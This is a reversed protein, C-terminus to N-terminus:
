ASVAAVSLRSSQVKFRSGQVKFKSGVLGYSEAVGALLGRLAKRGRNLRSMVTGLPINLRQAIEKYSFEEVDALVVVERYTQPLSHLANLVEKDTLRPEAPAEYVLREAQEEGMWAWRAVYRRRYHDLRHFLIKHLWARCNTGAEYRDFCRWAHMYVEQALDEAEGGDAVFRAATRRLEQFHPLAEREFRERKQLLPM